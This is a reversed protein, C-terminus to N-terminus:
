NRFNRSFYSMIPVLFDTIKRLNLFIKPVFHVLSSNHVFLTWIQVTKKYNVGKLHMKVGLKSLMNIGKIDYKKYFIIPSGILNNQSRKKDLIM